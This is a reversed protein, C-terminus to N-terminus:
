TSPKPIYQIGSIGAFHADQTWLTAGHIHVTALIMSDAMPMRHQISLQAAYLALPETITVITGRRM